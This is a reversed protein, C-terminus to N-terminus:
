VPEVPKPARWQGIKRSAWYISGLPVIGALRVRSIATMGAAAMCGCESCVPKGGFQCPGIRTELDASVCTTVNAFVCEGPSKPTRAYGDLVQDPMHLKPYENRLGAIDRIVFARDGATLREPTDEGEQPTYLSFWIRRVEPRASWFESFERLYGPRCQQRTVTCHVIVKHGAIHKLIRDYTAPARRRDHEPQLGDISVVCYVHPLAAWDMPIPRVASTVVQTEVGMANFKPLVESLERYRVLPEGGILSVHLPHFEEVLALMRHVLEPGRYDSLQRLTVGGELHEPAYAYCGPCRLPCEKTVEISLFPRYGRLILGWAPLIDSARM